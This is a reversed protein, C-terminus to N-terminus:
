STTVLISDYRRYRACLAKCLTADIAGLTTFRVLLVVRAAIVYASSASTVGVAVGIAGILLTIIAGVASTTTGTTV